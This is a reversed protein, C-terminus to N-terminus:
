VSGNNQLKQRLFACVEELAETAEPFMPALLPFCHFLGDWVRLHTEVGAEKLREALRVSDDLLTELDGVEIMTPPLGSLEGFLPSAYPHNADGQGM